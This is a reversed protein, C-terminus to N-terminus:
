SKMPGSIHCEWHSFPTGTSVVLVQGKGGTHCLTGSDAWAGQQQPVHPLAAWSAERWQRTPAGPLHILVWWGCAGARATYGQPWSLLFLSDLAGQLGLAGGLSVTLVRRCSSMGGM